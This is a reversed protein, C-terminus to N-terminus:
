RPAPGVGRGRHAARQRGVGHQSLLLPLLLPLLLQRPPPAVPRAAALAFRRRALDDHALNLPRFSGCRLLVGGPPRLLDQPLRDRPDTLPRVLGHRRPARGQQQELAAAPQGGATCRAPANLCRPPWIEPDPRPPATRHRTQGAPRPRLM